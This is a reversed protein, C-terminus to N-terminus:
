ALFRLFSSYAQHKNRHTHTRAHVSENFHGLKLHQAETGDQELSFPGQAKAELAVLGQMWHGWFVFCSAARVLLCIGVAEAVGFAHAPKLSSSVSANVARSSGKVEDEGRLYSQGEGGDTAAHVRRPTNRYPRATRRWSSSRRADSSTLQRPCELQVCPERM